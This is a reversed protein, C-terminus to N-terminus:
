VGLVQYGTFTVYLYAKFSAANFAQDTDLLDGMRCELVRIQPEIETNEDFRLVNAKDMNKFEQAPLRGSNLFRGKKKDRFRVDFSINPKDEYRPHSYFYNLLLAGGNQKM